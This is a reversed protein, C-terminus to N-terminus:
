NWREMRFFKNNKKYYCYSYVMPAIAMIITVSLFIAVSGLFATALIIVAGIVWVIGAFRHTKNWNEEDNLTWPIKIGMTYNQKCKPMYNGIVLFLVGMFVPAIIEVKIAYGLATAYTMSSVLLSLVPCIWFMLMLPKSEVGKNKPDASTVAVCIIHIAFLFLPLVFVAISKSSFGDAVGEANWHTAITEPLKNWLLLGAPIPLLNILATILFLIKHKKIM